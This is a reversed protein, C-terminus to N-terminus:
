WPTGEQLSLLSELAIGMAETTVWDEHQGNPLILLQWDANMEYIYGHGAAYYAKGLTVEQMVSQMQAYKDNTVTNAVRFAELMQIQRGAEKKNKSTKPTGPNTVTPGPFVTQSFYGLQKSSDWLGLSNNQSTLPDLLDTAHNLYTADHTVTYTHLFSLIVQAISGARVQGGEIHTHGYLGREITQNPNLSGDPLLVNNMQYALAHYSAIYAHNFVFQIIQQGNAVWEPKQFTTGAQVLACGIEVALDVRYYGNPQDSSTKYVVGPKPQVTSSAFYTALNRAATQYFTDHSLRYIDILEDYVWGRDDRASSFESKVIRTYRQLEGDFQTDSPHVSKYLWLNHVYRLDTLRDHRLTQGTVDNQTDGSGSFNSQLPNTGYRWNVWLGGLGNNVSKSSDYGNQKINDLVTLIADDASIPTPTSGGGPPVATPQTHAHSQSSCATAAIVILTMVALLYLRPRSQWAAGAALSPVSGEIRSGRRKPRSKTYTPQM